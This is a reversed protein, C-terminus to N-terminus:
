FWDEPTPFNDAADNASEYSQPLDRLDQRFSNLQGKAASSLEDWRDKLYWLDTTELWNKRTLRIEGWSIDIDEVRQGNVYHARSVM